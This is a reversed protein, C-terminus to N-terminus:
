HDRDPALEYVACDGARFRLTAFRGLWDDPPNHAQDVFLWRVGYRDRLRGVTAASPAAFAADNAALLDPDWFDVYVVHRGTSAARTHAASTYGWGEVLVRRETFGSVWFHRNDCARVRPPAPRCHANTAVVDDPRSHERLWRGAELTGPTITPNGAYQQRWGHTAAYRVSPVIRDAGSPLGLGTVIVILVAARVGRLRSTARGVVLVALAVVAVLALYPMAVSVLAARAGDSHANPPTREGLARVLWILAAGAVAAGALVTGTRRAPWREPVVAALGGVAALALYPRASMFFFGESSGPHGLLLVLGMGAAGMGLLLVIEPDFLRRRAVLAAVGAWIFAWCLLFVLLLLVLRSRSPDAGDVLRATANIGTVKAIALPSLSLGGAGSGSGSGFLVLQAFALAGGTMAAAALAPYRLRRRVALDVAVVLLLGALLVPLFTAKAGMVAVLLVALLVWRGGARERGRLLDFLLLVVPVFLMQAYTQTPSSFIAPRLLSGDEVVSFGNAFSTGNLPWGYPNPALVLFTVVLAAPGTWWRGTLRRAAVAVLVAFTVVMPLQSLRHLLVFPEIGTVWNTAAMDAYVFWHYHLPEGLLYPVQPPVHHKLEGVLALHMPTDTDAFGYTANDLGHTRWYSVCVYAGVVLIVAAVSWSWWAPARGASAPTRWWRRLAPVALFVVMTVIPWAIVLRPMNVARAPVYALLMVAYGLATGAAADEVLARSQGMAARWLLTGPVTIGLALYGAFLATTAVPVQYLRLALVAAAVVIGAPVWGGGPMRRLASSAQRGADPPQEGASLAQGEALYALTTGV